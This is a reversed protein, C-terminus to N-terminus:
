SGVRAHTANITIFFQLDPSNKWDGTNNWETVEFRQKRWTFEDGNKVEVGAADLLTKPIVVLLDRIEEFGYLKLESEKAETQVRAHIAVPEDFVRHATADVTDDLQPQSWDMGMEPVSEGELPDFNTWGAIGLLPDPAAEDPVDVDVKLVFYPLAPCHRRWREEILRAATQADKSWPKPFQTTTAIDPPFYAM